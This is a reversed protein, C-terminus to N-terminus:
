APAVDVTRADTAWPVGLESPLKAEAFCRTLTDDIGPLTTVRHGPQGIIRLDGPQFTRIDDAAQQCAWVVQCHPTAAEIGCVSPRGARIADLTQWVKGGRSDFNPTGYDTEQILSM